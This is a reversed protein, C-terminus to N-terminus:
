NWHRVILALARDRDTGLSRALTTFERALAELKSHGDDLERVVMAGRGRRLEILGEAALTQYGSLVTHVSIHLSGALERAAPLRDGVRLRGSVLHGRIQAAVQDGLKETSAADIEVLM